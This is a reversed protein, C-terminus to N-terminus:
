PVFNAVGLIIVSVGLLPGYVYSLAALIIALIIFITKINM